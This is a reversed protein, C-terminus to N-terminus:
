NLNVMSYETSVKYSRWLKQIRYRPNDVNKIIKFPIVSDSKPEISTYSPHYYCIGPSKFKQPIKEKREQM